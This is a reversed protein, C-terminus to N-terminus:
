PSCGSEPATARSLDITGQRGSNAGATFHYTLTAAGCSHFQLNATGVQTTTVPTSHDFVGGSATYIPITNVTSAGSAYAGQLTFWRQGAPGGIQQGNPAYTYWAGFMLHQVPDIDFLLGQGATAPEFWAGSLFYNPVPTLGTGSASCMVNALARTLPMSGSRGSGDSFQYSLSGHTCDTFQLTAEGVQTGGVTPPADFNGGEAIYIPLTASYQAHQVTGQITYWRQGGAATVDYTFWGGFLLGEGARYLDPVVQIVFGQGSTAPNLWTGTLGIQNLEVAGASSSNWQSLLNATDVSGLGTARDYGATVAYGQLGGSLSTPGPTSNNCLSPESLSCPSVGSTAVTIDHFVGNGANAGLAYLRPNLNAQASGTKQNLLAVIGAMSPASASTGGGLLFSFGGNSVTCPGGQAAFCTFYGDRASAHLSVDPTYRGQTGPVGPGTQWSPTPIFSSVGGGTSSMQPTGSSDLPENWAGEPIYSIASLYYQTNTSRWYATPNDLDNFETGGVCTVHSSSCLINTSMPENATPASDLAACGAVGGDGSAVLVSIGEAAAQSFFDDLSEAQDRSNDAECSTYSISLIKAPVPDTDVVYDMSIFVGDNSNTNASVVLDITAGPAVSGARQVDLTAELQEGVQDSPNNCSPTGTDSCTTAPPGPDIGQPPVITTPSRVAVGSMRQFNSVDTEYIRSRGVIAITQGSGDIDQQYVPNVNYIVDFDTPFIAYACVGNTCSSGAPQLAAPDYRGTVPASARHAPKFTISQLGSVARIAGAFAAPIQPADSTAIRKEGAADYYHLETAFAAAVDAARGSFGVRTRGNSIADVNLGQSRLWESIADIDHASPGFREGIESPSLWQHYDPSAPDQQDRLLQEFAQQREPPRKLTVSLHTLALDDAVRGRDNKAAAWGAREGGLAVRQTADASKAVLDTQPLPTAARLPSALIACAALLAIAHIKTTSFHIPNV